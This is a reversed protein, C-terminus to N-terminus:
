RRKISDRDDSYKLYPVAIIVGVLSAALILASFAVFIIALPKSSARFCCEDECADLCSMTQEVEECEECFSAYEVAWPILLAISALLSIGSAILFVFALVKRIKAVGVMLISLVSNVLALVGLIFGLAHPIPGSFNLSLWVIVASLLVMSGLLFVVSLLATTIVVATPVKAM